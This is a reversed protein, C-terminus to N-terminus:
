GSKAPPDPLRQEKGTADTKAPFTKRGQDDPILWFGGLAAHVNPRM